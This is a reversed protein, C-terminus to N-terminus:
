GATAWFDTLLATLEEPRQVAPSHAAGRIVELRAGLRRAMDDQEALPWIYDDEGYAVMTALGTARLEDTRDPSEILQAGMGALSAKATGTFRARMFELVDAPVGEREGNAEALSSVFAWIDPLELEPLLELLIRARDAEFEPIGAPGSCLLTVSRFAAPCAIAAARCTLGGFSHGVGHVPGDGAAEIIALLDAGLEALDYAGPEDPGPTEFQGRQDVALVRHGAGALPALVTIFDEKSGTYGPVLLVTGGTPTDPRAEHVAFPGRATDLLRARACPPLRLHPPTSV